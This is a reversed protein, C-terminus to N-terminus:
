PYSIFAFIREMLETVDAGRTFGKGDCSWCDKSHFRFGDSVRMTEPHCKEKLYYKTTMKISIIETVNEKKSIM